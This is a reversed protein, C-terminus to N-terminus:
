AVNVRIAGTALAAPAGAPRAAVGAAKVRVFFNGPPGDLDVTWTVVGDKEAVTDGSTQALVRVKGGPNGVLQMSDIRGGKRFRATVAVPAGAPVALEEGPMAAELGAAATLEFEDVINGVVVYCAGSTLGAFVGAESKDPCYLCTRRYEGPWFETQGWDGADPHHFDSEATLTMRRGEAFLIDALGGVEGAWPHLIGKGPSGHRKASSVCLGALAGGADLAASV